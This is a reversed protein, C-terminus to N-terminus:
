GIVQEQRLAALMAAAYGLIPGSGFHRLERHRTRM